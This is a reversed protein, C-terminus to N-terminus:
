YKRKRNKPRLCQHYSGDELTFQDDPGAERISIIKAM